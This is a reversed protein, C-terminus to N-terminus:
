IIEVVDVMQNAVKRLIGNGRLAPLKTLNAADQQVKYIDDKRYSEM